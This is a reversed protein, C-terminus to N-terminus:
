GGPTGNEPHAACRKGGGEHRAERQRLGVIARRDGDGDLLDDIGVDSSGYQALLGVDALADEEGGTQSGSIM